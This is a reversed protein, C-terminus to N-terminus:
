SVAGELPTLTGAAPDLTARAGLALPRNREGHGVPLGALVPVGLCALREAVVELPAPSPPGPWGTSPEDCRVFDGLVVGAVERLAGALLLHTLMRDLRYPREGVDELVLIAGRLDPQWPTAVLRTLVALNGGVLPGTVAAGPCLVSLRDIPPAPAPDELAHFLAQLDSAPLRALQTVVPGHLGRMGASLAWHLLVTADSFGVLLRPAALLDAAQQALLPLIRMAGYGGRACVIAKVGPERLWHKLEDARREDPGALYGARALVGGDYDVRYRQRLKRVGAEFDEHPVPGSPAIVAVRDGACLRPPAVTPVTL